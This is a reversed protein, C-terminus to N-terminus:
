YPAVTVVGEQNVARLLLREPYEEKLRDVDPPNQAFAFLVDCAPLTPCNLAALATNYLWWENTVVLSNRPVGVIRPGLLSTEVFGLNVSRVGSVGSLDTRRELEAPTYFVVTNLTLVGVLVAPVLWSAALGALVQVGRAGLLLMWPMAEFYYRPGLAVGHYFYGVYAVVFALVGGLAVFDWSRARGALFPVGLLGLAFLPPWGFLDLQLLTLLEDTNALGAALTHRLYFGVGDGFGFHDGPNFIVRPLLLANGTQLWNYGLYLGVFPVGLAVITALASWRRCALLRVGLPLAVLLAAVERVLFAIGLLAGCAAYWRKSSDREGAVFAAIAAALVGGAIPHSLYSDAQFLIFPSILGLALAAFGCAPGYLARATWSAAGILVVCLVPGVLWELSILRGLAYFAPAGPPYQSFLRGQWVVEFPGKFAEPLAPAPLALQGSAFLGAQFTYSVADLIHPLQHLQETAVVAALVLWVALAVDPVHEVWLQTARGPTDNRTTSLTQPVPRTDEGRSHRSGSLSPVHRRAFALLWGLGLAALVLAYGAVVTRGLLQLLEAAFPAPQEPFFWRPLAEIGQGHDMVWRANRTDRDLELGEKQDGAANVLWVRAVAEPRRLDVDVRFDAPLAADPAVPQGTALDVISLREWRSYSSEDRLFADLKYLPTNLLGAIFLANRDDTATTDSGDIQYERDAPKPQELVLTRWDGGLASSVAHTEGDVQIEVQGVPAHAELSVHVPFAAPAQEGLALLALAILGAVILRALSTHEFFPEASRAWAYDTSPSTSDREGSEADRLTDAAGRSEVKTRLRFAM